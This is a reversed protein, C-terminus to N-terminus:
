GAPLNAPSMRDHVHKGAAFDDSTTVSTELNLIRVDPAAAALLALADGWPWTPDVPQPVSGHVREALGIYDRADRLMPEALSPDGPHSLIQDIGRGLMVDGALFLSLDGAM